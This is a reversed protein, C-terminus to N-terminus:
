YKFWKRENNVIDYKVSNNTMALRPRMFFPDSRTLKDQSSYHNNFRTIGFDHNELRAASLFRQSDSLQKGFSTTDLPAAYTHLSSWPAFHASETQLQSGEKRADARMAQQLSTAPDALSLSPASASLSVKEGRRQLWPARQSMRPALKEIEYAYRANHISRRMPVPPAFLTKCRDQFGAYSTLNEIQALQTETRRQALAEHRPVDEPNTLSQGVLNREDRPAKKRRAFFHSTSRGQKDIYHEDHRLRKLYIEYKDQNSLINYSHGGLRSAMGKEKATGLCKGDDYLNLSGESTRINLSDNKVSAM